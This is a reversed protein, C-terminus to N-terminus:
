DWKYDILVGQKGSAPIIGTRYYDGNEVFIIGANKIWDQIVNGQYAIVNFVYEGKTFPFKNFIIKIKSQGVSIKYTKSVCDSRCASYFVEQKNFIAISFIINNLDKFAEISFEISIKQGSIIAHSKHFSEGICYNGLLKWDIFKLNGEGERDKRYELIETNISKQTTKFYNQIAIDVDGEFYKMGNELVVGKNCLNQVSVM